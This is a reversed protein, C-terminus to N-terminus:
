SKPYSTQTLEAISVDWSVRSPGVKRALMTSGEYGASAELGEKERRWRLPFLFTPDTMSAHVLEFGTPPGFLAPWCDSSYRWFDWPLDHMGISQHTHLFVLGGPKLVKNIEIAVKWPILLHEFVSVSMVFDFHDAPFLKSLEHADGVVDVNDGEVIDLVTVDLCPYDQSRDRGSRARGGIDLMRGTGAEAVAQHFSASATNVERAGVQHVMSQITEVHRFGSDSTFQVSASFPFDRELLLAHIEFGCAEGPAYGPSPLGILNRQGALPVGVVQVQTVRSNRANVYGKIYLYNGFRTVVQIFTAARDPLLQKVLGRINM